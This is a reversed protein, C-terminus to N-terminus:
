TTLHHFVVRGVVPALQAQAACPLGDMVSWVHTPDLPWYRRITRRTSTLPYAGPRGGPPGNPCRAPEGTRGGSPEGTRVGAQGGLVGLTGASGCGGPEQYGRGPIDSGATGKGEGDASRREM